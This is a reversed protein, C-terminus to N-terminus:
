GALVLELGLRLYKIEAVPVILIITQQVLLINEFSQRRIVDTAL